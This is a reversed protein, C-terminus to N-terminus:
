CYWLNQLLPLVQQLGQSKCDVCRWLSIDQEATWGWRLRLSPQAPLCAPCELRRRTIRVWGGLDQKTGNHPQRLVPTWHEPSAQLLSPIQSDLIGKYLIPLQPTTVIATTTASQTCLSFCPLPIGRPDAPTWTASSLSNIYLFYVAQEAATRWPSEPVNIMNILLIYIILARWHYISTETELSGVTFVYPWM